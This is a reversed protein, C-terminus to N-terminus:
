DDHSPEVTEAEQTDETKKVAKDHKAKLKGDDDGEIWSCSVKLGLDNDRAIAKDPQIEVEFDFGFLRRYYARELADPDLLQGDNMLNAEDPDTTAGGSLLLAAAEVSTM